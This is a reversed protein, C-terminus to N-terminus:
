LSDMKDRFKKWVVPVHLNGDVFCSQPFLKIGYKNEDGVLMGLKSLGDGCNVKM